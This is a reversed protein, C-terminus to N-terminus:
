SLNSLSTNPYWLFFLLCFSSNWNNEFRLSWIKNTCRRWNQCSWAKKIDLWSYLHKQLPYTPPRQSIGEEKFAALSGHAPCGSPTQQGVPCKEVCSMNKAAPCFILKTNVQPEEKIKSQEPEQDWIHTSQFHECDSVTVSSLLNQEYGWNSELYNSFGTGGPDDAAEWFRNGTKSIRRQEARSAWEVSFKDTTSWESNCTPMWRSEM